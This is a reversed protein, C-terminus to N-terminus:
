ENFFKDEIEDLEILEIFVAPGEFWIEAMNNGSLSGPKGVKFGNPNIYNLINKYLDGNYSNLTTASKENGMSMYYEQIEKIDEDKVRKDFQKARDKFEKFSGDYSNGLSGGNFLKNIFENYRRPNVGAKRLNYFSDWIDDKPAIGIKTSDFPFVKYRLGGTFGQDGIILSCIVQRRPFKKWLPDNNIIHTYYNETNRSLRDPMKSADLFGLPTNQISGTWREISTGKDIYQKWAKNAKTKLLKIAEDQSISKLRTHSKHDEQYEKLYQKLKM